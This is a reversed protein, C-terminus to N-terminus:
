RWELRRLQPDGARIALAAAYGGFPKLDVISWEGAERPDQVTSVLRAPEGPKLSVTFRDLPHSLGEGLAKIYAEKRTWCNFFAQTRLEAPLSALARVEAESFFREAIELSAFDDRLLEVDVGVERGLTFAYLAAEHSHSVNFRLGGADRWLVPKGFENYAFRILAPPTALYRGLLERLAGRAIVFRRRDREFHFRRAREREDDTLTAWLREAEAGDRELSARWVHVEGAGLRLDAPPPPWTERQVNM